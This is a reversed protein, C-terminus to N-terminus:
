RRAPAAPPAPELSPERPPIRRQGPRERGGDFRQGAGEAARGLEDIERLRLPRAEKAPEEVRASPDISGKPRRAGRSARQLHRIGRETGEHPAQRGRLEVLLRRPQHPRVRVRHVEQAREVATIAGRPAVMPGAEQCPARPDGRKRRSRVPGPGRPEPERAGVGVRHRRRLRSRRVRAEIERQDAHRPLVARDSEIAGTEDDLGLVAEVEVDHRSAGDHLRAVEEGVAHPDDIASIAALDNVFISGVAGGRPSGARTTCSTGRGM